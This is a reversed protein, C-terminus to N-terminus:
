HLPRHGAARRARDRQEWWNRGPEDFLWEVLRRRIYEVAAPALHLMDAEYFRYDRLEDMVIEYAPFYGASPTEELLEGLATLLHAKSRSNLLLNGPYHRVPSVTWLVPVGARWRRVAAMARRMAALVEAASLLRREFDGGPRKHCNAVVQNSAKEVYVVASSVTLVLLDANQLCQRFATLAANCRALAAPLEPESLSGHLENSQWLRDFHFFDAATFLRNEAMRELWGTISVPNYFIGGPNCVTRCGCQLFYHLMSEAFCSGIGAIVPAPGLKPLPCEPLGVPTQWSPRKM